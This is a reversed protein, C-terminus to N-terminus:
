GRERKVRQLQLGLFPRRLLSEAVDLNVITFSNGQSNVQFICDLEVKKADIVLEKIRGDPYFTTEQSICNKQAMDMLWYLRQTGKKVDTFVIATFALNDEFKVFLKKLQDSVITRPKELYDLYVAHEKEVVEGFVSSCVFHDELDTKLPMIPNTISLDQRVIFYEM